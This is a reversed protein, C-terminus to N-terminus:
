NKEFYKVGEIDKFDADQTWLTANHYKATALILSDAMGLKHKLSLQAALVAIPKNLDIITGESMHSISEEASCLSWDRAVKKFMEFLTVTPVILHDTDEAVPAFHAANENNLFYAIWASTDLVNM